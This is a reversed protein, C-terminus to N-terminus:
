EPGSLYAETLWDILQEDVEEPTRVNVVHFEGCDLGPQHWVAACGEGFSWIKEHEVIAIPHVPFQGRM